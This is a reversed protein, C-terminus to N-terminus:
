LTCASERFKFDDFNYLMFSDFDRDSSKFRYHFLIYKDVMKKYNLYNIRHSFDKLIDFRPPQDSVALQINLNAGVMVDDIFNLYKIKYCILKVNDIGIFFGSGSAFYIKPGLKLYSFVVTLFRKNYFYEKLYNTKGVLGSYTTTNLNNVSIYRLFNGVEIYSSLNTRYILKTQPYNKLIVNFAAILKKSTSILDDNVKLKITSELIEDNTAGGEYFFCKINEKILRRMWTNEIATKFKDYRVDKTSLILVVIESNNLM